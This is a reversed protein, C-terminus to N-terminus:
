LSFGSLKLSYHIIFPPAGLFRRLYLLHFDQASLTLRGGSDMGQFRFPSRLNLRLVSLQY